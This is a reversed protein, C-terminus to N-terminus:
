MRTAGADGPVKWNCLSFTAGLDVLGRVPGCERGSGPDGVRALAALLGSTQGVGALLRLNTVVCCGLRMRTAADSDCCGLRLRLRRTAGRGLPLGGSRPRGPGAGAKSGAPGPGKDAVVAAVPAPRQSTRWSRVHVAAVAWGM